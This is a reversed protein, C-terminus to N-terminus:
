EAQHDATYNKGLSIKTKTAKDCQGFIITILAKRNALFKSYEQSRIKSNWDFESLLEKQLNPNFVNTQRAMTATCPHLGTTTNLQTQNTMQTLLELKWM